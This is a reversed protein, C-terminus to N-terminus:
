LEFVLVCGIAALFVAAVCVWVILKMHRNEMM